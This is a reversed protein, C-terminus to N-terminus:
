FESQLSLWQLVSVLMQLFFDLLDPSHSDCDPNQSPFNVMQTFDNSIIVSNVPDIQEVLIPSDTRIISASTELSLCMQLHISQSFRM